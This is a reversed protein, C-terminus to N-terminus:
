WFSVGHNDISPSNPCPIKSPKDRYHCTIIPEASCCHNSLIGYKSKGKEESEAGSIERAEKGVCRDNLYWEGLQQFFKKKNTKNETWSM